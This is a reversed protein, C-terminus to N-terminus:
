SIQKPWSNIKAGDVKPTWCTEMKKLDITGQNIAGHRNWVSTEQHKLRSLSEMSSFVKWIKGDQSAEFQVDEPGKAGPFIHCPPMTLNPITGLKDDWQFWPIRPNGVGLTPGEDCIAQRFGHSFKNKGVQGRICISHLTSSGEKFPKYCGYCGWFGLVRRSESDTKTAIWDRLFPYCKVDISGFLQRSADTFFISGIPHLLFWVSKWSKEISCKIYIDQICIVKATSLFKRLHHHFFFRWFGITFWYVRQLKQHSAIPWFFCWCFCRPLCTSVNESVDVLMKKHVQFCGVANGTSISSVVLWLKFFQVIGNQQFWFRFLIFLQSMWGNSNEVLRSWSNEVLDDSDVSDEPVPAM